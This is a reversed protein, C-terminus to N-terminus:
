IEVWIDGDAPSSPATDSVTIKPVVATIDPFVVDAPINATMRINSYGSEKVTTVGGGGNTYHGFKCYVAPDGPLLTQFPTRAAMQTGDVYPEVYGNTESFLIRYTIRRWRYKFWAVPAFPVRQETTPNEMSLIQNTDINIFMPPSGTNGTQHLSHVSCWGDNATINPFMPDACWDFGIWREAGEYNHLGAGGPQAFESRFTGLALPDEGPSLKVHACLRDLYTEIRLSGSGLYSAGAGDYPIGGPAVQVSGWNAFNDVMNDMFALAGANREPAGSFTVSDFPQVEVKPRYGGGWSDPRIYGRTGAAQLEIAILQWNTVKSGMYQLFLTEDEGGCVAASFVGLGAYQAGTTSYLRKLPYGPGAWAGAIPGADSPAIDGYGCPVAVLVITNGVVPASDFRVSGCATDLYPAAATAVKYQRVPSVQDHGTIQLGLINFLAANAFLDWAFSINATAAVPRTWIASALQAGDSRGSTQYGVKTWTGGGTPSNDQPTNGSFGIGGCIGLLLSNEATSVSSTTAGNVAVAGNESKQRVLVNIM